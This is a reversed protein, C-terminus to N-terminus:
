RARQRAYKIPETLADGQEELELEPQFPPPEHGCGPHCESDTPHHTASPRLRGARVVNFGAESPRHPRRQGDKLVVLAREDAVHLEIAVLVLM